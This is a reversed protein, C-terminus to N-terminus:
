RLEDFHDNPNYDKNWNDGVRKVHVALQDLVKEKVDKLISYRKAVTLVNEINQKEIFSNDAEEIAAARVEEVFSLRYEDPLLGQSHLTTLFDVDTDDKMPRIFNSTHAWLGPRM